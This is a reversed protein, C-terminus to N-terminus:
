SSSPHFSIFLKASILRRDRHIRSSLNNIGLIGLDESGVDGVETSITRERRGASVQETLDSVLLRSPLLRDVVACGM